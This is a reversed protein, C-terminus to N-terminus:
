IMHNVDIDLLDPVDARKDIIPRFPDINTNSDMTADKHHPQKKIAQLLEDSELKKSYAGQSTKSQLTPM